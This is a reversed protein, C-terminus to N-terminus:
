LHICHAKGPYSILKKMEDTGMHGPVWVQQVRSHGALKVLSLCCDWVLKPNVQFSDLAKIAVQM